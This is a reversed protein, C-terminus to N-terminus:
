ALQPKDTELIKKLEKIARHQLLKVAGESKELAHAAEKISLEEVFRMIVVDQHEPKLKAIAKRVRALEFLEQTLVEPNHGSVMANTDVLELSMEDKRTRYHDIVGNRAIRYLWSAFPLGRMEYGRINQWADVFIQHTIDEADEKRGVRLLVFRYMLPHYHDYLAGFADKDGSIAQAVRADHNDLQSLSYSVM